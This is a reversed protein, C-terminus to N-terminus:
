HHDDDRQELGQVSAEIRNDVSDYVPEDASMLLTASQSTPACLVHSDSRRRTLLSTLHRLKASGSRRRSLSSTTWRWVKNVSTGLIHKRLLESEPQLLMPIGYFFSAGRRLNMASEDAEPLYPPCALAHRLAVRSLMTQM